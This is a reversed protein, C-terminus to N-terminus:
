FRVGLRVNLAVTSGEWGITLGQFATTLKPSVKELANTVLLHGVALSGFYMATSGASPHHGLICDSEREVYGESVLAATQAADMVILAQSITELAVTQTPWHALCLIAWVSCM